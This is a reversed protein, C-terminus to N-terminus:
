VLKHDALPLNRVFRGTASHLAAILAPAVPPVAPEGVGGLPSGIDVIDTYIKPAEPMRMLPYDNFNSQQARGDQITIKGYLAASLGGIVGAHMQQEVQGPNIARGCDIAVFVREVKVKDEILRMEVVEAVPSGYSEVVAVGRHVGATPKRDWQSRQAVQDLVALMRTQGALHLRRYAVPDLGTAAACENMFTELWYGTYSASISHWPCMPIPLPVVAHEIRLAPFQYRMDILGNLSFPDSPGQVGFNDRGMQPGSVRVQMASIRGDAALAARFRAMMTQRYHGQQMDDARQWLVKVPRGGVARSALVAQLAIDAVTKRGFGGGLYTTHLTMRENSIGALRELTSRIVDHGQTGIWLEASDATARATGSIPEMCAHALMPVGYEAEIVRSASAFAAETDGRTLAPPVGEAGLGVKLRREIEPTDLTDHPTSKFKIDLVEAAQKAQWWSEAVVVAGRPVRVVALVGPMRRAAADDISEVDTSFVPALRVAGHAMGPLRVDTSFVAEGRVKAPVDLRAVTKGVLTQQSRARLLPKPPVPLASAAEVLEGMPISRGTPKHVIAGDIAELSELDVALRNAAAQILVTRAQAAALRLPDHWFRIGFSGVSRMQGMPLRFDATPRLPMEVAIRKWDAGLEDALVQAQGTHIGQGMEATPLFFTISSDRNIRIFSQPQRPAPGTAPPNATQAAAPLTIAVTLCGMLSSQLFGRRSAVFQPDDSPTTNMVPGTITEIIRDSSPKRLRRSRLDSATM